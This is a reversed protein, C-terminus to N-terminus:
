FMHMNPDRECISFLAQLPSNVCYCGMMGISVEVLKRVYFGLDVCQFCDDNMM